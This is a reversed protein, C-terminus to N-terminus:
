AASARLVVTVGSGSKLDKPASAIEASIIRKIHEARANPDGSFRFFQECYARMAEESWLLEANLERRVTKQISKIVNLVQRRLSARPDTSRFVVSRLKASKLRRGGQSRKEGLWGMWGLRPATDFRNSIFRCSPVQDALLLLEVEFEEYTGRTFFEVLDILEAFRRSGPRFSLFERFSLPGVKIRFSAQPYWVRRGLIGASGLRNQDSRPGLRTQEAPRLHCWRGQFDAVEVQIGMRNRLLQKLGSVSRPISSLLGSSGLLVPDPVELRERVSPAAVGLLALLYGTISSQPLKREYGIHLHREEWARYQLSILRHNFLDLFDALAQDPKSSGASEADILLRTYFWPLLGSYGTLGLVAVQMNLKTSGDDERHSPHERLQQVVAPPFVFSNLQSFHIAERSPGDFGGPQSRDPMLRLCLRVAQFFEFEHVKQLLTLGLPPSTQGSTTAM